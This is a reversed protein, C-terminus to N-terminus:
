YVRVDDVGCTRIVRMGSEIGAVGTVRVLAGDPPVVGSYVKAAAGSGDDVVFYGAGKQTVRGAATILLGVNYCHISGSIGPTYPDPSKGGIAVIKMMMPRLSAGVGGATTEVSDLERQGNATALRGAIKILSGPGWPCSGDIRLGRSRDPEQVYCFGGFNASVLKASDVIVPTADPNNMADALTEYANAYVSAGSTVPNSWNGAVDRAKVSWFYGYSHQLVGPYHHTAATNTGASTWDLIDTAGASTGIAYAYEAIGSMADSGSWSASLDEYTTGRIAVYKPVTPAVMSPPDSDYFYPGLDVSGNAVNEGNYGRLHLYWGQASSTATVSKAGSSWQAESGTWTHTPSNDWAYRYHSVGGPGFGSGTFTFSSSNYWTNTNRDCTVNQATPPVSLTYRSAGSCQASENQGDLAAVTYTYQTNPALGSDQYSTGTTTGVPSGNRYVKYGTVGLNDTSATWSLSLQSTTSAAVQLNTPVTPPCFDFDVQINQGAALTVPIQRLTGNVTVKVTYSGPNLDIFAYFGTGDTYMSKSATGTLSVVAGDVWAGTAGYVTGRIHGKTPSSKWTMTPVTVATSYIPPTITDYSSPQTLANAFTAFSLSESNTVAYSYMVQGDAYKGNLGVNRTERLQKISNTITNLYVGPGIVCHRNYKFGKAFAIWNDYYTPYSVENYYCMPMNIDLIGEQMWAKWDQLVDSYASTSTWGSESTPGNGWTITAASVKVNPKVAIANAYVKRVLNTVQDRRWQLWTTDTYVPQGTRGYRANFRAVSTENYGWKKGAYRAYDFHIGDVDYRNVVDMFLDYIYQEADPHGPDFSYNTGDFTAGTNDKTLYQPYLNYPHNPNTPPSSTAVPLTCLWCHVEIRPISNHAQQILYALADFSPNADSAWPEISPYYTDGRRRMQVVVANCNALKVDSILQNVQSQTKFGNHYADVWFARFEPDGVAYASCSTGASLITLVLVAALACRAVARERDRSMEERLECGEVRSGADTSGCTM